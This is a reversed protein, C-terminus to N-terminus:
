RTKALSSHGDRRQPNRLPMVSARGGRVERDPLRCSVILTTAPFQESLASDLIRPIRYLRGLILIALSFAKGYRAQVAEPKERTIAAMGLGARQVGFFNVAAFILALAIAIFGHGTVHQEQVASIAGVLLTTSSIIALLILLM